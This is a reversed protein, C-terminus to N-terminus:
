IREVLETTNTMAATPPKRQRVGIDDHESGPDDARRDRKMQCFAAYRYRQDVSGARALARGVAIGADDLAVRDKGGRKRRAPRHQRADRQFAGGNGVIVEPKQRRDRRPEHGEARCRLRLPQDFGRSEHPRQKRARDFLMRCQAGLSAGLAIELAVAPELEVAGVGRECALGAFECERPLPSDGIHREVGIGGQRKLWRESRDKAARHM